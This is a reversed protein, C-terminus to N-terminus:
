HSKAPIPPPTRCDITSLSEFSDTTKYERFAREQLVKVKRESLRKYYNFILKGRFLIQFVPKYCKTGICFIYIKNISDDNIENLDSVSIKINQELFYSKIVERKESLNM